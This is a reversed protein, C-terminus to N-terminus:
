EIWILFNENQAYNQTSIIMFEYTQDTVNFQGM